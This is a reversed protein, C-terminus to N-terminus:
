RFRALLWLVVWTLTTVVLVSVIYPKFMENPGLLWGYIAALIDKASQWLHPFRDNLRQAGVMIVVASALGGVVIKLSASLTGKLQRAQYDAVDFPEGCRECVEAEDDSM